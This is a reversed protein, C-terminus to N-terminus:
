FSECQEM